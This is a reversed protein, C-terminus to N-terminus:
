RLKRLMSLGVKDVKLSALHCCKMVIVIVVMVIVLGGHGIRWNVLCPLILKTSRAPLSIVFFVFLSPFVKSSAFLMLLLRM